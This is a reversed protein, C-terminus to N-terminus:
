PLECCTRNVFENVDFSCSPLKVQWSMSDALLPWKSRPLKRTRIVTLSMMHDDDDDGDDPSTLMAAEVTKRWLPCDQAQKVILQTYVLTSINLITVPTRRVLADERGDGTLGVLHTSLYAQLARNHDEAIDARAVHGFLKLRRQKVLTTIPPQGTRSHV